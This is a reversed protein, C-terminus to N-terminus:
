HDDVKDYSCEQRKNNDTKKEHDDNGDRIKDKDDDSRHLDVITLLELIRQRDLQDLSRSLLALRHSLCVNKIGSSHLPDTETESYLSNGPLDAQGAPHPIETVAPNLDQYFPLFLIDFLKRPRHITSELSIDSIFLDRHGRRLASKRLEGDSLSRM